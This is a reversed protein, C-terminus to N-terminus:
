RLKNVQTLHAMVKSNADMLIKTCDPCNQVHNTLEFGLSSESVDKMNKSYQEKTMDAIEKEDM